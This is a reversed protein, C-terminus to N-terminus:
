MSLICWKRSEGPCRVATVIAAHVNASTAACVLWVASHGCRPAPVDLFPAAVTGTFVTPSLDHDKGVSFETLDDGAILAFPTRKTPEMSEYRYASFVVM